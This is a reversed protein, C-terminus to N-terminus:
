SQPGNPELGSPRKPRPSHAAPTKPPTGTEHAKALGRHLRETAKGLAAATTAKDVDQAYRKLVLTSRKGEDDDDDDDYGGYGSVGRGGPTHM